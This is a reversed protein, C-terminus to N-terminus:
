WIPFLNLWHCGVQLVDGSWNIYYLAVEEFGKFDQYYNYGMLVGKQASSHLWQNYTLSFYFPELFPAARGDTQGDTLGKRLTATMLEDHFKRFHNGNVSTIETCFALALPWPWLPWFCIKGWNSCKQVTVRTQIWRHSHLSACINFHCLLPARNNQLTIRWIELDCPVFFRLNQDSNLTKPSYSRNSNVSPNSIICLAHRLM